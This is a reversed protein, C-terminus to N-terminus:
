RIILMKNYSENSYTFRVFYVGKTQNTLDLSIVKSQINGQFINLKEKGLVDFLRVSIDETAPLAINITVRGDTQNPYVKIFRDMDQLVALVESM